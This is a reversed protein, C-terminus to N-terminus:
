MDYSLGGPGIGAGANLDTEGPKLVPVIAYPNTEIASPPLKGLEVLAPIAEKFIPSGERAAESNRARKKSLIENM